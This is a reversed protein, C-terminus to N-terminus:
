VSCCGGREPRDNMTQLRQWDQQYLPTEQVGDRVTELVSVAWQPLAHHLRYHVWTGRRRSDVIGEQRLRALNRSISPQPVELAYVLECVCLEQERMILILARLRTVDSLLKFLNEPQM